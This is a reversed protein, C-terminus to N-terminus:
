DKLKKLENKIRKKHRELNVVLMITSTLGGVVIIIIGVYYFIM